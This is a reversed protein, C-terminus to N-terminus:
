GSPSKLKGLRINEDIAREVYEWFDPLAEKVVSMRAYVKDASVGHQVWTHGDTIGLTDMRLHIEPTFRWWIM